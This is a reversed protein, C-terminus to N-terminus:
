LTWDKHAKRQKETLAKHTVCLLNLRVVYRQPQLFTAGAKDNLREGIQPMRQKDKWLLRLVNEVSCCFQLPFVFWHYSKGASDHKLFVFPKTLASGFFDFHFLKCIVGIVTQHLALYLILSVLWAPGTGFFFVSHPARCSRLYLICPM